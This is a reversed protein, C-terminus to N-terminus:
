WTGVSEVERLHSGCATVRKRALRGMLPERGPSPGDERVGAGSREPWGSAASGRVRWSARARSAGGRGRSERARGAARSAESQGAGDGGGPGPGLRPGDEPRGRGSLARRLRAPTPRGPDRLSGLPAARLRVSGSLGSHSRLLAPPRFRPRACGSPVSGKRVPQARLANPEACGARHRGLARRHGSTPSAAAMRGLVAQPQGLARGGRRVPPAARRLRTVGLASGVLPAPLVQAPGPASRPRLLQPNVGHPPLPPCPLREPARSPDPPSAGPRAGPRRASRARTHTQLPPRLLRSKRQESGSWRGLTPSSGRSTSSRSYPAM